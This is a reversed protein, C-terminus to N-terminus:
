PYFPYGVDKFSGHSIFGGICVNRHFKFGVAPLNNTAPSDGLRVSRESQDGRKKSFRFSCSMGGQDVYFVHKCPVGEAVGECKFIEESELTAHAGLLTDGTYRLTLRSSKLPLGVVWTSRRPHTFQFPYASVPSHQSYELITAVLIM